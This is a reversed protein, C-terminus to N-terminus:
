KKPSRRASSNARNTPRFFSLNQTTAGPLLQAQQSDGARLSSRTPNSLLTCVSVGTTQFGEVRVCGFQLETHKLPHSLLPWDGQVVQRDSVSPSAYLGHPCGM